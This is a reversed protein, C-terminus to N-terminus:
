SAMGKLVNLAVERDDFHVTRDSFIQETEHGKGALVVMDGKKALGIAKAIARARDIEVVCKKRDAVGSLIDKLIAKPDESRPNDSTVVVKDALTECAKAMLPRKGKDRDGGCGFLVILKRPKMSRASHLLNELGAPTHAYDVVVWFDQGAMVPEFRGPVGRFDKFFGIAKAPTVGLAAGLLAIAGLANHAHFLGLVPLTAEYSANEHEFSFVLGKPGMHAQILRYDSKPHEGFTVALEGMLPILKQGYPCDRNIVGPKGQPKLYDSFLRKKSNFYRRLTGHFDLHDQTLNTFVGGAFQTAHVRDLDLAHSSVEMAAYRVGEQVCRALLRQLELSEPTTRKVALLKEGIRNEITGFLASKGDLHTLAHHLMYTTSTKGNTGTVGFVSMHKSPEHYFKASCHALAKRSDPVCILTPGKATKLKNLASAKTGVLVSAGRAAAEGLFVHGDLKFGSVAVFLDGEGAERSDHRIGSIEPNKPGGLHDHPLDKMLASLKM